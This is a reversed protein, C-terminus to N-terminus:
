REASREGVSADIATQHVADAAHPAAGRVPLSEMAYLRSILRVPLGSVDTMWQLVQEPGHLGQMARHLDPMAVLMGPHCRRLFRELGAGRDIFPTFLLCVWQTENLGYTAHICNAAAERLEDLAPQQGLRAIMQECVPEPVRQQQMTALMHQVHQSFGTEYSRGDLFEAELGRLHAEILPDAYEGEGQHFM